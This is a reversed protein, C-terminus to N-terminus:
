CPLWSHWGSAAFSISSWRAAAGRKHLCMFVAREYITCDLWSFKSCFNSKILDKCCIRMQVYVFAYWFVQHKQMWHMTQVILRPCKISFVLIQHDGQLLEDKASIFICGVFSQEKKITCNLLSFKICCLCKISMNCCSLYPHMPCFIPRKKCTVRTQVILPLFKVCFLSKLSWRAAGTKESLYLQVRSFNTNWQSYLSACFVQHLLSIQHEVQPLEEKQLSLFADGLFCQRKKLVGPLDIM